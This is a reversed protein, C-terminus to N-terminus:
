KASWLIAGKDDLFELSPRAPVIVRRTRYGVGRILVSRAAASRPIGHWVLRVRLGKDDALLDMVEKPMGDMQLGCVRYPSYPDEEEFWCGFRNWAGLSLPPPGVDQDMPDAGVVGLALRDASRRSNDLTTWIRYTGAIFSIPGPDRPPLQLVSRALVGRLRRLAAIGPNTALVRSRWSVVEHPRLAERQRRASDDLRCLAEVYDEAVLDAFTEYDAMEFGGEVRRIACPLNEGWDGPLPEDETNGGVSSRCRGGLTSPPGVNTGPRAPDETVVEEARAPRHAMVSSLLAVITSWRAWHRSGRM